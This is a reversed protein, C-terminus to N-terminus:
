AAILEPVRRTAALSRCCAAILRASAASVGDGCVPCSMTVNGTLEDVAVTLERVCGRCWRHRTVQNVHLASSVCQHIWRGHVACTLRDDPALLGAEEALDEEVMRRSLPTPLAIVTSM